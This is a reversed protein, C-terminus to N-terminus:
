SYAKGVVRRNFFNREKREYSNKGEKNIGTEM